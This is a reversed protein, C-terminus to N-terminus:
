SDELKPLIKLPNAPAGQCHNGTHQAGEGAAVTQHDVVQPPTTDTFAAHAVVCFAFQACAVAFQPFPCVVLPM